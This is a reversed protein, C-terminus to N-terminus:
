IITVTVYGVQGVGSPTTVPLINAREEGFESSDSRPNRLAQPDFVKVEGIHLQPHDPNWCEPCALTQTVAGKVVLAKLQKLRYAFGCVDCIALAKKGSAYKSGM